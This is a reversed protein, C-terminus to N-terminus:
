MEKKHNFDVAYIIDEEGEQKIKWMTGGIMHGALYPTISLGHGRGKLSVHQSYKLQEIKDFAADVDDLTYHEFNKYNHHSQYFDYVFMQGMKHVPITAYIPCNLGCKGVLYPLAGVHYIDPHSLLVADISHLHKRINEVVELDLNEDWGCDLLFRFEDVQLLYCLPKEDQAGSLPTFRIISTM